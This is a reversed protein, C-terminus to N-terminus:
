VPLGIVWLDKVTASCNLLSGREKCEKRAGCFFVNTNNSDHLFCCFYIFLYIFCVVVTAKTAVFRQLKRKQGLQSDSRLNLGVSHQSKCIAADHATPPFTCKTGKSCTFALRKLDM